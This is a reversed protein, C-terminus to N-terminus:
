KLMFVASNTQSILSEAIFSGFLIVLRIDYEKYHSAILTLM